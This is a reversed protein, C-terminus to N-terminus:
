DGEEKKYIHSQAFLKRKRILIGSYKGGALWIIGCITIVSIWESIRWYWFGAFNINIIGQFGSPVIVRVVNNNGCVVSLKRGGNEVARYGKYYLLPLEIYQGEAGCDCDIRVHCGNKDYSNLAIRDSCVPGKYTLKSTDTGLLVYEGGSIYGNGMCTEDYLRFFKDSKILLTNDYYVATLINGAAIVAAIGYFAGSRLGGKDKLTKLDHVAFCCLMTMFVAGAVLMRNPFQLTAILQRLIGSVRALRDWPFYITAMFMSLLGFGLTIKGAKGMLSRGKEEDPVACKLKERCVALLFVALILGFTLGLGIGYGIEGNMGKAADWAGYEGSPFPEFLQPLYMGWAQIQKWAAGGKTVALNMSTMYDLFPVLYWLNFLITFVAAKLLQLFVAKRFVRKWCIVCLLVIFFAMIECSLVHSCLIGSLGLTLPLFGFRDQVDDTLIKYFGYAALPLFAMATYQGVGDVGYIYIIRVSNFTYLLSGFLGIGNNRFMKRFSYWSILCTATNVMFKYCKYAAQVTFGMIRLFAPVYLFLDCYFIDVAYGHGQLWEPGIRVPFQGSLMGDKIGEIRLLHFTMDAGTLLYDTLLPLSVGISIFSLVAATMFREKRNEARNFRSFTYWVGDLLVLFLAALFLQQRERHNTRVLKGGSVDLTGEGGFTVKVRVDPLPETLWFLYSTQEKGAYLPTTSVKLAGYSASDSLVDIVNAMDSSAQYNVIVRYSGPPLRVPQSIYDVGTEETKGIQLAYEQNKNGLRCALFFLIFLEAAM